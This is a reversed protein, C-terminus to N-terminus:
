YTGAMGKHECCGHAAGGPCPHGDQDLGGAVLDVLKASIGSHRGSVKYGVHAADGELGAQCGILYQQSAVVKLM